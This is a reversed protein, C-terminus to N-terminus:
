LINTGAWDVECKEGPKRDIHMTLKNVDVYSKYVNCFQIYKLYPEDIAICEEVYEEWLLLLTVGKHKLEQHIYKCDPRRKLIVEELKKSFLEDFSDDNIDKLKKLTNRIRRDSFELTKCINRQSMGQHYLRIINKEKSM